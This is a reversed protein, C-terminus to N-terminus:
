LLLSCSDHRILAKQPMEFHSIWYQINCTFSAEKECGKKCSILSVLPSNRSSNWKTGHQRVEGGPWCFDHQGPRLNAESTVHSVQVSRQLWLCFELAAPIEVKCPWQYCRKRWNQGWWPVEQQWPPMLRAPRGGNVQKRSNVKQQSMRGASVPM